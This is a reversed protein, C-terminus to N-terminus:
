KRKKNLEVLKDLLAELEDRQGAFQFFEEFSVDKHHAFIEALEQLGEKVENAMAANLKDLPQFKSGEKMM